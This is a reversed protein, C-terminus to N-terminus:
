EANRPKISTKKSSQQMSDISQNKFLHPMPLFPNIITMLWTNNTVTTVTPM